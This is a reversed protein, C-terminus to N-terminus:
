WLRALDRAAIRLMERQKFQRLRAFAGAYDRAALAPPLWANVERRLGQEQRPHALHEATLAGTLWEPHQVLLASMSQSGSFLAALIRAQEVSARQLTARASTAALQELVQAVRPADACSQLAGKWAPSRSFAPM